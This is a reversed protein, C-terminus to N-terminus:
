VRIATFKVKFVTSNASAPTTRLRMNGGSIDMTYAAVDSGTKLTGFETFAVNTGDHIALIKVLQFNSGQTAQILYEGSRYTAVALQHLNVQTTATTTLSITHDNVWNTGNHTLTDGSIPSTITSPSIM